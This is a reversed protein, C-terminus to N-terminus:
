RREGSFNEKGALLGRCMAACVAALTFGDIVRGAAIDAVLEPVPVWRVGAVEGADRPSSVAAPYSACFMHVYSALIGSDPTMLGLSALAAPQEGLEELLEERATRAPDGGHALGRPLGWEWASVPYRYVHVLGIRDDAVPVVVVGPLGGSQVVSIYTGARGDAFRVDDDYVTAFRSSYVVRETVCEIPAAQQRAQSQPRTM